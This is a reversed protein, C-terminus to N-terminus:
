FFLLFLHLYLHFLDFHHSFMLTFVADINLFLLLHHFLFPFFRLFFCFAVLNDDFDLIIDTGIDSRFKPFLNLSVILKM